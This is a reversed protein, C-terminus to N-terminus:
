QLSANLVKPTCPRRRAAGLAIIIFEDAFFVTMWFGFPASFNEFLYGFVSICNSVFFTNTFFNLGSQLPRSRAAVLKPAFQLARRSCRLDIIQICYM